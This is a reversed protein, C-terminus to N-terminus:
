LTTGLEALLQRIAEVDTGNNEIYLRFNAIADQDREPFYEKYLQGLLFYNNPEGPNLSIARQYAQEADPYQELAVYVEGLATFADSYAPDLETARTIADRAQNTQNRRLMLRGIGVHCQSRVNDPDVGPPIDGAEVLSLVQDFYTRAEDLQNEEALIRGMELRPQLTNGSRQIAALFDAKAGENDEQARRLRGRIVYARAFNSNIALAAEVEATAAEIQGRREYVEGLACHAPYLNPDYQVASRLAQEAQMQAETGPMAAYMEGMRLHILPQANQIALSRRYHDLAEGSRGLCNYLDGLLNLPEIRTGDLDHARNLMRILEAMAEGGASPSPEASAASAATEGSVAGSTVATMMPQANVWALINDVAKSLARPYERGAAAHVQAFQESAELRQRAAELCLALRYRAENVVEPGTEEGFLDLAQRLSAIADGSAPDRQALFQGLLLHAEALEPDLELARRLSQMANMTETMDSQRRALALYVEAERQRLIEVPQDAQADAIAGELLTIAAQHRGAEVLSEVEALLDRFVLASAAEIQGECESVAREATVRVESDGAEGAEDMLDLAMRYAELAEGWRARHRLDEARQMWSEWAAGAEISQIRSRPITMRGGATDVTIQTATEQSIVGVIQNGNTLTVTDASAAPMVGLALALALRAPWLGSRSALRARAM